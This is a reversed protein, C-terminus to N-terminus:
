VDQIITIQRSQQSKVDWIRLEIQIARVRIRLPIQKPGTQWNTFDEIPNASPRKSWTDFIRETLAPFASNGSPPLRDFPYDPNGPSLAPPNIGPWPANGGPAPEWLVKIEFHTVNTLLLDTAALPDNLNNGVKETLTQIGSAPFKGLSYQLSAENPDAGMRRLPATVTKPGNVLAAPQSARRWASVEFFRRDSADIEVPRPSPPTAYTVNEPLDTVLLNQQRYLNYLPTTGASEGNPRVFYMVEAWQSTFLTTPTAEAPITGTGGPAQIPFAVRRNYIPFNFRSLRGNGLSGDPFPYVSDGIPDKTDVMFYQDRRIGPLKVTFQLVHGIPETSPSAPSLYHEMTTDDADLGEKAGIGQQYIRFYGGGGLSGVEGSPPEWNIQDMRQDSLNEGGWPQSAFKDFHPRTLDRRIATTAARLKEQMDGATKLVRFSTLGKEFATAIIWMMFIILASAVMMEVLTFAARRPRHHIRTM